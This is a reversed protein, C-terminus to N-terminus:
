PADLMIGISRQSLLVNRSLKFAPLWMSHSVTLPEESTWIQCELKMPTNRIVYDVTFESFGASFVNILMYISTVATVCMQNIARRLMDLENRKLFSMSGEAQPLKTPGEGHLCPWSRGLATQLNYCMIKNWLKEEEGTKKPDKKLIKCFFVNIEIQAM